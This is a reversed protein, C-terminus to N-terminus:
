GATEWVSIHSPSNAVFPSRSWDAWRERLRMGALRAMLDLESPWVYRYPASHKELRGDIEFWHHSYAIQDVGVFEEYGVHDPTSDFVRFPQGPSLETMAPVVVEIVFCGGPRLHSAANAFCAVQEDQTVLNTITNYVLYVLDFEGEVRTNIMDGTTVSLDAGGPKAHLKETMAPSLEIGCVDVGRASLALAVRGTGSAFELARGGVALGELFSVTPELVAPEFKDSSTHDYFEAVRDDFQIRPRM